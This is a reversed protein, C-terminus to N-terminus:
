VGIGVGGMGLIWYADGGMSAKKSLDGGSQHIAYIAAFPGIANAVDIAGHSFADCVATFVQLYKFVEETKPDFKEATKHLAVVRSLEQETKINMDVKSEVIGDEIAKMEIEDTAVEEVEAFKKSVYHKIKPVMPVTIIASVGGAGFAVAFAIGLPTKDLGLGKAGKYIIFFTNKDTCFVFPLKILINILITFVINSKLYSNIQFSFHINM